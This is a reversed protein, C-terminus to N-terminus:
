RPRDGGSVSSLLLRLGRDSTLTARLRVPTDFRAHGESVVVLVAHALKAVDVFMSAERVEPHVAILLGPRGIELQYLAQVQELIEGATLSEMEYAWGGGRAFSEISACRGVLQKVLERGRKFDQEARGDQELASLVGRLGTLQNRVEHIIGSTLRGVTALREVHVTQRQAREMRSLSAALARHARQQEGLLRRMARGHEGWDLANRICQNLEMQSWPTTLVRYVRGSNSAEVVQSEDVDSTVLVRVADPQQFRAGQFMESGSMGPLKLESLILNFEREELAELADKGEAVHRVESTQGLVQRLSVLLRDAVEMNSAVVLVAVDELMELTREM